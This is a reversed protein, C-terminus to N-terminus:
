WVRRPSYSLFHTRMEAKLTRQEGPPFSASDEDASVADETKPKAPAFLSLSLPPISTPSLPSNNYDLPKVFPKKRKLNAKRVLYKFNERKKTLYYYQICDAPTQSFPLLSLPTSTLLSPLFPNSVPRLFPLFPPPSSLLSPHYSLPLPTSLLPPLTLWGFVM